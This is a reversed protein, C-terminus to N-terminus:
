GIVTPKNDTFNALVQTLCEPNINGRMSICVFSDQENIIMVLEKIEGDAELAKILVNAESDIIELLTLYNYNALENNIRSFLNFSDNLNENIAITFSSVGKLAPRLQRTEHSALMAYKVLFGPLTFSRIEVDNLLKKVVPKFNNNHNATCSSNLGAIIIVIVLSIKVYTKM